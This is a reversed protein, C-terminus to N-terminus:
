LKYVPEYPTITDNCFKEIIESGFKQFDNTARENLFALKDEKTEDLEISYGDEFEFQVRKYYFVPTGSGGIGQNMFKIANDINESQSSFILEIIRRKGSIAWYWTGWYKKKYPEKFKKMGTGISLVKLKQVPVALANIAESIGIFAPNNAFVGGDINNTVTNKEKSGKVVYEFSHPKFYLPASATSLAADHAPYQYDRFLDKHHSTKLVSVRGDYGNYVPICLRTKSHGIRTDGDESFKSFREKLLDSLFNSQYSSYFLSLLKGKKRGFINSANDKYLSHIEDSSMGLALGLAIIGGTSTGCILDFYNNLETKKGEKGLQFEMEALFKAAYIGRIGGGDISLIKFPKKADFLQKESNM